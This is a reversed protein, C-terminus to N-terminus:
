KVEMPYHRENKNDYHQVRPYTIELPNIISDTLSYSLASIIAQAEAPTFYNIEQQIKCLATRAAIEGSETNCGLDINHRLAMAVLEKQEKSYLSNWVTAEEKIKWM